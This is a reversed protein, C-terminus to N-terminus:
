PVPLLNVQRQITFPMISNPFPIGRDRIPNHCHLLAVIFGRKRDIAQNVFNSQM